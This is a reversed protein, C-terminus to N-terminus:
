ATNITAITANGISFNFPGVGATIDVGGHFATATYQQTQDKSKCSPYDISPTLTINDIHEHVFVTVAASTVGGATATITATRPIPLPNNNADVTKCVIPTTLSDWIGACVLGSNSVTVNASSSTFTPTAFIVHGAADKSTVGLQQTGGNDMSLSTQAITVTTIPGLKSGGGNGGGCGAVTLATFAILLFFLLYSCYRRMCGGRRSDRGRRCLEVVLTSPPPFM